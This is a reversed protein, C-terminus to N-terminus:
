QNYVNISYLCSLFFTHVRMVEEGFTVLKLAIFSFFIDTINLNPIAVSILYNSEFWLVLRIHLKIWMTTTRNLFWDTTTAQEFLFWKDKLEIPLWLFWHYWNCLNPHLKNIEEVLSVISRSHCQRAGNLQSDFSFMTYIIAPIPHLQYVKEM